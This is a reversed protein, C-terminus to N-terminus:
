LVDFSLNFFVNFNIAIHYSPIWHLIDTFPNGYFVDSLPLHIFQIYSDVALLETEDRCCQLKAFCKSSHKKPLQRGSCFM